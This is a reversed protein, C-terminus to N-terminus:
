DNGMEELQKQLKKPLSAVILDYSHDILRILLATDLTGEFHVTNWHHKNMHYGPRVEDPYQERLEEAWDPECKLNVTFEENDLGTLAFMKGMVKFVLTVEDFPFTEEVGKKALCYDRFTEIDM